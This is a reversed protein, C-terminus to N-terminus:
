QSVMTKPPASDAAGQRLHLLFENSIRVMLKHFGTGIGRKQDKTLQAEGRNVIVTVGAAM